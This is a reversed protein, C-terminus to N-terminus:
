RARVREAVLSLIQRIGFPKEICQNSVEDLFQRARATFAGGTLFVIKDAQDPAEKSLVEYLDMGTIDPMMLDCFIVDFRGGERLLEIAEAGSLVATLEHARGLARRFASVIDPDDDVIMIHGRQHGFNLNDVPPGAPDTERGHVISPLTVEVTTGKGLESEFRITGNVETLFRHCMSLGLGTGTGIPKTTFFPQFLRGMTESSMGEGTDTIRIVARGGKGEGMTIRVENTEARGEPIAQAANIVLNLFVQGLRSESMEVSPTPGFDKVLRARHRIENWALRLTSDMVQQIDVCSRTDEESRSFVRLDRVIRRIREAGDCIDRLVELLEAHHSSHFTEALKMALQQGFEANALVSALPNNVEHAVGAALLGMSAMRDTVLASSQSLRRESADRFVLVSGAIREAADTVPSASGDIPLSTGDRRLLLTTKGLSQASQDPQNTPLPLKKRSTEDIIAFVEDVGRTEAEATKWGTLEEAVENMFRVNNDVGVAIVGDNMSQLVATLWRERLHRAREHTHLAIEVAGRLDTSKVPKVLYGYPATKKARQILEDEVASTLFIVPIDFRNKIQEAVEIGDGDEELRIDMIILDPADREVAELAARQTSALPLVDYDFASLRRRLEHGVIPEDEVVLVKKL